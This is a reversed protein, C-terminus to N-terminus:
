FAAGPKLPDDPWNHKPYRGKLEKKVQPYTNKWFGGLDHTVQQIRYNPALVHLVVPVRSRAIRPTQAVGFLEQIKAALIPSKGPEYKLKIKRGGRVKMIEPADKELSVLQERSLQSEIASVMSKSKLDSISTCGTCWVPLLTRWPDAGFEPLELEPLWERLCLIRNLLEISAEDILNSLDYNAAVAEALVSGPDIEPPMSSVTEEIILDCFRTRKFAVVKERKTDFVADISIHIHSEPLWARQISSARRVSLEARKLDVLDVAAFFPADYVNSQDSLIVGRGGVMVGRPDKPKRRKCIRDPFATMIARLIAEDPSKNREKSFSGLQSNSSSQHSNSSSHHSKSSSSQSHSGSPIEPLRKDADSLMKSLQSSTRLLHKAAGPIVEGMISDRIGSTDFAEIARMQELVDSDTHHAGRASQEIKRFPARESLVAACLAARIPQGLRAGELMLRALRPQLPFQAMARGIDTLKGHALADLRDLLELANDIAARPPPQFWPFAHVDHEGWALLQLICESLDVREIEPLEFDALAIQERETWLRLCTGETTRGARGARQTASAKSIRTLELRNIGVNPDFKNVRAYGTDVVADVGDITISTEAVNTALVVKRRGGPRLVESQDPLPMDGYLPMVALNKAVATPELIAEVERIEGVGPLFVLVHGSSQPLVRTVADSALEEISDNSSFKLYDLSVPFTRGPSEVAPCGGLFAAIPAPDLTASMVVIKLDPRLERRVQSTMALALDSDISREHFEDFIVVSVNEILPDEQLRRLFVGETCVLIKTQKSSRGEHRVRYGIDDGLATGREESMRVAAARAAVRRPQLVVIQGFQKNPLKCLGADLIAPPVRTTKGAGPEAKIVLASGNSLRGIVLPLIEEIPLPPVQVSTQKSFIQSM